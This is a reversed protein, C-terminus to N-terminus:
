EQSLMDLPSTGTFMSKKVVKKPAAAPNIITRKRPPVTAVVNEIVKITGSSTDVDLIAAHLRVIQQEKMAAKYQEIYAKLPEIEVNHRSMLARDDGDGYPNDCGYILLQYM